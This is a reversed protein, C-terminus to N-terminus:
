EAKGEHDDDDHHRDKHMKGKHGKGHKEQYKERAEKRKERLEKFAKVQDPTLEAEIQAATNQHISKMEQHLANLKKAKEELIPKIKAQQADSLGLKKTLKALQKDPNHDHRYGGEEAWGASVLVLSCVTLTLVGMFSKLTKGSRGSVHIRHHM